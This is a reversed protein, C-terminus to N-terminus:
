IMVCSLDSCDNKLVKKVTYLYWLISTFHKFVSKVVNALKFIHGNFMKICKEQNLQFSNDCGKLIQKNKWKM